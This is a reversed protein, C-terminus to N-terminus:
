RGARFTADDFREPYLAIAQQLKAWADNDGADARLGAAGELLLALVGHLAADAAPELKCQVFLQQVEADIGDALIKAAAADAPRPAALLDRLKLMGARLSADTAHLVGDAAAPAHAAHAHEHAHEQAPIGNAWIAACLLAGLLLPKNPKM